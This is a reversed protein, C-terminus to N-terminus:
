RRARSRGAPVLMGALLGTSIGLALWRLPYTRAWHRWNMASDVRQRLEGLSSEVRERKRVIDAELESIEQDVASEETPRFPVLTVNAM